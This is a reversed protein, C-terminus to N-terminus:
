DWSAFLTEPLPVPFALLIKVWSTIIDLSFDETASPSSLRSGPSQMFFDQAVVFFL